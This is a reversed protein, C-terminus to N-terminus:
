SKVIYAHEHHISVTDYGLRRVQAPEQSFLQVPINLLMVILLKKM